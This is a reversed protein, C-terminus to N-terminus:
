SAINKIDPEALGLKAWSWDGIFEPNYWSFEVSKDAFILSPQDISM